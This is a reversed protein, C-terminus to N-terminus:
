LMCIHDVAEVKGTDATHGKKEEGAERMWGCHKMMVAGKVGTSGGAVLVAVLGWHISPAAGGIRSLVAVVGVGVEMWVRGLFLDISDCLCPADM